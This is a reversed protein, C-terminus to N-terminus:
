KALIQAKLEALKAPDPTEAHFERVYETVLGRAFQVQRATRNGFMWEFDPIIDRGSEVVLCDPNHPFWYSDNNLHIFNGYKTLNNELTFGLVERGTFVVGYDNIFSVKDGANITCGAPTETQGNKEIWEKAKNM